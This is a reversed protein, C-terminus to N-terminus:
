FVKKFFWDENFFKEFIALSSLDVPTIFKTIYRSKLSYIFDLLYILVHLLQFFSISDQGIFGRVCLVYLLEVNIKYTMKGANQCLNETKIAVEGSSSQSGYRPFVPTWYYINLKLNPMQNKIPIKPM